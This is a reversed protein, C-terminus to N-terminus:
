GPEDAAERERILDRLRAAEEYDEVALAARLREQLRAREAGRGAHEARRRPAKGVHRTSNHIKELIPELSDKFAEYDAPCGLRGKARFETYKLGCGPCTLRAQEPTVPTVAHGVLLHLSAPLNLELKPESLLHQQRACDECLHLERKQKNVIDTM